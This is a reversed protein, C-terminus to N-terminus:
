LNRQTDTTCNGEARQRWASTYAWPCLPIRARVCGAHFGFNERNRHMGLGRHHVDTAEDKRGVSTVHGACTHCKSPLQHQAPIHREQGSSIQALANDELPALNSVKVDPM